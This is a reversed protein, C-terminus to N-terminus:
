NKQKVIQNLKIKKIIISENEKSEKLKPSQKLLQKQFKDIEKIKGGFAENYTRKKKKFFNNLIKM